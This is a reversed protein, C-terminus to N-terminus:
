RRGSERQWSIDPTLPSVVKTDVEISGARRRVETVKLIDVRSPITGAAVAM